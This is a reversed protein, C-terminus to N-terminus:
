RFRESQFALQTGKKIDIVAFAIEVEIGNKDFGITFHKGIHNFFQLIPAVVLENDFQLIHVHVIHFLEHLGIEIKREATEWFKGAIAKIEVFHNTKLYNIIFHSFEANAPIEHFEGIVRQHLHIVFSLFDEDGGALLEDCIHIALVFDEM